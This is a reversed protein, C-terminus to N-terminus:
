GSVHEASANLRSRTGGRDGGGRMSRGARKWAGKTLGDAGLEPSSGGCSASRARRTPM